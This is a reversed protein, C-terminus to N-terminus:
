GEATADAFLRVIFRYPGGQAMEALTERDGLTAARQLRKFLRLRAQCRVETNLGLIRLTRRVRARALRPAEPSPYLAGTLADFAFYDKVPDTDPRLLLVSWRDRKHTSNCEVCAPYLNAWSLSLEFLGLRRALSVPIFHDITEPSTERLEGDCYACLLPEGEARVSRHFAQALTAQEHHWGHLADGVRM